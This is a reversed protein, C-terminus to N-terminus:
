RPPEQLIDVGIAARSGDNVGTLSPPRQSIWRVQDAAALADIRGPDIAAVFANLAPLHGALIAGQAALLRRGDAVPVDAHMEVVLIRLGDTYATWPAFAGRAVRPSIKQQPDLPTLWSVGADAADAATFQTTVSAIWTQHPIYSLLNIGHTELGTRTGADPPTHFQILM